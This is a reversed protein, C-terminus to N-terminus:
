DIRQWLAYLRLDGTVVSLDTFHGANPSLEDGSDTDVYETYWGLFKYGNKSPKPITADPTSAFSSGHKIQIRDAITFEDIYFIVTHEATTFGGMDAILKWSTSTEKQYIKLGKTDFYFDGINGDNAGPDGAGSLWGNAKPITVIEEFGDEYIIRFHLNNPDNYTSDDLKISLIGSGKEGKKITFVTEEDKTEGTEADYHSYVIHVVMNGEGDDETYINKITDGDRGDKGPAIDFKIPEIDNNSFFITLTVVNTNPDTTPVINTIYTGNPLTIEKNKIVDNEEYWITIITSNKDDSLRSDIGTISNGRKGPEPDPIEFSDPDDEDVYYIYIVTGTDSKNRESVIRDIQRGDSSGFFSCASALMATLCIMIVCLITKFKKAM